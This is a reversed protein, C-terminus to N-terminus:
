PSNPLRTNSKSNPNDNAGYSVEEHEREKVTPDGSASKASFTDKGQETRLESRIIARNRTLPFPLEGQEPPAKREGQPLKM